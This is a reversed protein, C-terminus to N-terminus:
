KPLRALAAKMLAELAPKMSEASQGKPERGTARQVDASTVLSCATVAGGAQRNMDALAPEAQGRSQKPTAQALACPPAALALVTACVLVPHSFTKM